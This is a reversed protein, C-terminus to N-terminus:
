CIILEPCYLVREDDPEMAQVLAFKPSATGPVGFFHTQSGKWGEDDGVQKGDPAGLV